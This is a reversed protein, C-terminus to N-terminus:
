IRVKVWVAFVELVRKNLSARWPSLSTVVFPVPRRVAGGNVRAMPLSTTIDPANGGSQRDFSYLRGEGIKSVSWASCSRISLFSEINFRLVTEPRRRSSNRPRPCVSAFFSTSGIERFKSTTSSSSDMQKEILSYKVCCPNLTSVARSISSASPRM